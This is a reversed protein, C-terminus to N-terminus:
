QTHFESPVQHVNQLSKTFMENSPDAMKTRGGVLLAPIVAKNGHRAKIHTSSLDECNSLLDKGVSREGRGLVTMKVM